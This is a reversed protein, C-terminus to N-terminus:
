EMETKGNCVELIVDIGQGPYIDATLGPNHRYLLNVYRRISMDAPKYEIAIDWLTDGPQVTYRQLLVGGSNGTSKIAAACIGCLIVLVVALAKIRKKYRKRM